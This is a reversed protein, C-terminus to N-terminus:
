VGLPAQLPWGQGEFIFQACINTITNVFIPALLNVTTTGARHNAIVFMTADNPSDLELTVVQEDTLEPHYDPFYIVPDLLFMRRHPVDISRLAYLGDPGDLVELEFDTLPDLGLLPTVFTLGTM